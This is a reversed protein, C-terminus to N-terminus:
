ENNFIGIIKTKIKEKIADDIDTQDIRDLLIEKKVLKSNIAAQVYKNDKERNAVLKSVLMDHIELCLGNIGNTNKNCVSILRQQWNAPLTATTFDVGQAYYGFTDHFQSLEGLIADILDLKEPNGPVIIDAERSMYLIGPDIPTIKVSKNAEVLQDSIDPYQGLISQSGIIILEKIEAVTGAARILHELEYRNL